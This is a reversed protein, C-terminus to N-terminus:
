PPSSYPTLRWLFRRDRMTLRGSGDVRLGPFAGPGRRGSTPARCLVCTVTSPAVGRSAVQIEKGRIRSSKLTSSSLAPSPAPLPPDPCGCLRQCIWRLWFFAPAARMQLGTLAPVVPLLPAPLPAATPRRLPAGPIGPATVWGAPSCLTSKGARSIRPAGEDDESICMLMYRYPFPGRFRLPATM